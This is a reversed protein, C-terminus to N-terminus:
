QQIRAAEERVWQTVEKIDDYFHFRAGLLTDPTLAELETNYDRRPAFVHARTNNLLDYVVEPKDDIVLDADACITSKPIHMGLIHLSSFVCRQTAVWRATFESASPPRHTVFGLDAIAGIQRLAKPVGEYHLDHRDFVHKIGPGRWLWEWCKVRVQEKLHNWFKSPELDTYGRHTAFAERAALDWPFLVGDIDFYVKLARRM